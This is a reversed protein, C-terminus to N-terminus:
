SGQLIQRVTAAHRNFFSLLANQLDQADAAQIDIHVDPAATNKNPVVKDVAEGESKPCFDDMYIMLYAM